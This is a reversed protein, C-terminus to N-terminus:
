CTEELYKCETYFDIARFMPRLEKALGPDVCVFNIDGAAGYDLKGNGNAESVRDRGCRDHRGLRLSPLARGRRLAETSGDRHEHLKGENCLGSLRGTPKRSACLNPRM